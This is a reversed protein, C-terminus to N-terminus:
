RIASFFYITQRNIPLGVCHYNLSHPRQILIAALDMTRRVLWLQLTIYCSFFWVLSQSWHDMEVNVIINNRSSLWIRRCKLTSLYRTSWQYRYGVLLLSLEAQLQLLLRISFRDNISNFVNSFYFTLKLKLLQTWWSQTCHTDLMAYPSKFEISHYDFHACM